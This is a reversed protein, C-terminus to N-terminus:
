RHVWVLFAVTTTHAKDCNRLHVNYFWLNTMQRLITIYVLSPTFSTRNVVSGKMPIDSIDGHTPM